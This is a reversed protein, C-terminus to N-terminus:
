EFAKAPDHSAVYEKCDSEFAFTCVICAEYSAWDDDSRCSHVHIGEGLIPTISFRYKYSSPHPASVSSLSSSSKLFDNTSKWAVDYDNFTAIIVGSDLHIVNWDGKVAECPEIRFNTM